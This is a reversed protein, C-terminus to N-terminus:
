DDCCGSLITVREIVKLKSRDPESRALQAWGLAGVTEVSGATHPPNMPAGQGLPWTHSRGASVHLPASM